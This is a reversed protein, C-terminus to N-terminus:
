SARDSDLRNRTSRRGLQDLATIGTGAITFTRMHALDWRAFASDIADALQRFSLSRAAALIRGPRPWLDAGRGGVLEMRVSLWRRAM